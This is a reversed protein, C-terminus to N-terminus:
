EEEFDDFRNTDTRTTKVLLQTYEKEGDTYGECFKRLYRDMQDVAISYQNLISSAHMEVHEEPLIFKSGLAPGYKRGKKKGLDYADNMTIQKPM